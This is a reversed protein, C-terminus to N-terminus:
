HSAINVLDNLIEPGDIADADFPGNFPVIGTGPRGDVALDITDKLVGLHTMHSTGQDEFRMITELAVGENQHGDGIDAYLALMQSATDGRFAGQMARLTNAGCRGMMAEAFFNRCSQKENPGDTAEEAGSAMM